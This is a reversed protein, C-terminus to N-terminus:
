LVLAMAGTNSRTFIKIPLFRDRLLHSFQLFPSGIQVLHSIGIHRRDSFTPSFASNNNQANDCSDAPDPRCLSRPIDYGNIKKRHLTSTFPVDLTSSFNFINLLTRIRAIIFIM